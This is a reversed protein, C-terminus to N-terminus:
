RSRAWSRFFLPPSPRSPRLLFVSLLPPPSVGAMQWRCRGCAGGEGAELPMKSPVDLRLPDQYGIKADKLTDVAGDSSSSGFFGERRGAQAPRRGPARRSRRHARPSLIRCLDSCRFMRLGMFSAMAWVLCFFARFVRQCVRRTETRPSLPAARKARREIPQM